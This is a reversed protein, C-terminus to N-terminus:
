CQQLLYSLYMLLASKVPLALSEAQAPVALLPLLLCVALLIPFRKM